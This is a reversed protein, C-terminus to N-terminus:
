RHAWWADIEERPLGEGIEPSNAIPKLTVHPVREHVVRETAYRVAEEADQWTLDPIEGYNRKGYV